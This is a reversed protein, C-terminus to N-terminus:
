FVDFPIIKKDKEKRKRKGEENGKKGKGYICGFMTSSSFSDCRYGTSGLGLAINDM